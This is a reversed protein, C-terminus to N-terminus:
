LPPRHSFIEFCVYVVGIGKNSKLLIYQNNICAELYIKEYVVM